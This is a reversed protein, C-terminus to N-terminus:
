SRTSATMGCRGIADEVPDQAHDQHAHKPTNAPWTTASHAIPASVIKALAAAVAPMWAAAPGAPVPTTMRTKTM